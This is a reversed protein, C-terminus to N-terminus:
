EYAIDIITYEDLDKLPIFILSTDTFNDWELTCNDSIRVSMGNVSIDPDLSDYVIPIGVGKEIGVQVFLANGIDVKYRRNKEFPGVLQTTEM